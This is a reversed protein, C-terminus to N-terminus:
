DGIISVGCVDLFYFITMTQRGTIAIRESEAERDLLDNFRSLKEINIAQFLYSKNL